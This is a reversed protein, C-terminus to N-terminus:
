EHVTANTVIARRAQTYARLTNWSLGEPPMMPIADTTDADSVQPTIAAPRSTEAETCAVAKLTEPVALM